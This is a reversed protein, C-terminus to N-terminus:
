DVISEVAPGYWVSTDVNTVGLAKVRAAIGALYAEAGRIAELQMEIPDAAGTTAAEAARLLVVTGGARTLSAAWTLAAEALPSGDLPVLVRNVQMADEKSRTAARIVGRSRM